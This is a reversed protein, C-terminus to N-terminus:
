LVSSGHDRTAEGVEDDDSSGRGELLEREGWGPADLRALWARKADEETLDNWAVEAQARAADVKAQAADAKAHAADARAQAADARTQTVQLEARAAEAEAEAQQLLQASHEVRQKLTQDSDDNSPVAASGGAVSGHQQVNSPVFHNTARGRRLAVRNQYQSELTSLDTKLPLALRMSFRGLESHGGQRTDWVMGEFNRCRLGSRQGRGDLLMSDGLQLALCLEHDGETGAHVERKAIWWSNLSCSVPELFCLSEAELDDVICARASHPFATTGRPAVLQVSISTSLAGLSPDVLELNVVYVGALAKFEEVAFQPRRRFMMPASHRPPSALLTAVMPVLTCRM